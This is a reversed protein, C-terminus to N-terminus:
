MKAPRRPVPFVVTARIRALHIFQSCPGVVVGQPSHTGHSSIAALRAMSASLGSGAGVILAIEKEAM